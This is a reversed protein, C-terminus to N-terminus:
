FGTTSSIEPSKVLWFAQCVLWGSALFIDGLNFVPFESLRFWWGSKFFHFDLTGEPLSVHSAPIDHFIGMKVLFYM